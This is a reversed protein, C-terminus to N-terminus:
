RHDASKWSATNLLRSPLPLNWLHVAQLHIGSPAFDHRHPKSPECINSSHLSPYAQAFIERLVLFKLAFNAKVDGLLAM